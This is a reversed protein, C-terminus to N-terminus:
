AEVPIYFDVTQGAQQPNFGAPYLEFMAGGTPKEGSAPVIQGWIQGMASMFQASMDGGTITIRSVLYDGAPITLREFGDPLAAGPGLGVAAAYTFQDGEMDRSVGYTERDMHSAPLAAFFRAWLAPIQSSQPAFRQSLAAVVTADRRVLGPLREVKPTDTM